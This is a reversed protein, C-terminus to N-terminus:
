AQGPRVWVNLEGGKFTVVGNEFFQWSGAGNGAPEEAAVPFGLRERVGERKILNMSAAPVAVVRASSIGAFVTGGEFDQTLHSGHRAASSTPYGLWSSTAGLGNYFSEIDGRVGHVTGADYLTESFAGDSAQFRQVWGHTGYPPRSTAAVASENLPYFRDAGGHSDLFDVVRQQVPIVSSEHRYIAGSSFRQMWRQGVEPTVPMEDGTPIGFQGSCEGSILYQDLIAGTVARAGGEESWYIRGDEYARRYAASVKKPKKGRRLPGPSSILRYYQIRELGGTWKLEAGRAGIAKAAEPLLQLWERGPTGATVATILKGAKDQDIDALLSVALAEDAELLMELVAVAADDEARSLLVAGEDHGMVRIMGAAQRPIVDVLSAADLLQGVQWVNYQVTHDGVQIGQGGSIKVDM